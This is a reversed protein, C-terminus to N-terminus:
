SSAYAPIATEEDIFRVKWQTEDEIGMADAVTHVSNM